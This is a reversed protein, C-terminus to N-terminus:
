ISARYQMSPKANDAILGAWDLIESLIANLIDGTHDYLATRMRNKISWCVGKEYSISVAEILRQRRNISRLRLDNVIVLVRGRM